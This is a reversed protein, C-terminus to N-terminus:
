STRATAFLISAKSWQPPGVRNRPSGEPVGPRMKMFEKLMFRGVGRRQFDLSTALRIDNDMDGIYGVPFGKYLCVYYMDNYESM